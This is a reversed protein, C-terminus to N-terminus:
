NRKTVGVYDKVVVRARDRDNLIEQKERRRIRDTRRQSKRKKILIVIAVFLCPPTPITDMKLQLFNSSLGGKERWAATLINM